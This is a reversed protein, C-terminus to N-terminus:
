LLCERIRLEGSVIEPVDKPDLQPKGHPVNQHATSWVAAILVAALGLPLNRQSVTAPWSATAPPPSASATPPADALQVLVIGLMLGFQSLWQLQTLRRRLLCVSFLATLLTKIQYTIQFLLPDLNSLAVYLINNQVSFCIAPVAIRVLNTKNTLGAIHSQTM